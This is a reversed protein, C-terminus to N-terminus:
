FEGTITLHAAGTKAIGFDMIKPVGSHLVMINSPKIDRHVIGHGHAHHLADAVRATLQLAARWGISAGSALIEALTRGELYELAIFPTHTEPEWGVDYVIVVNPHSLRAALRAERLFRREVVTRDHPLAALHVVKLALSRGLAPDEAKYVVGMMGRGIEGQ